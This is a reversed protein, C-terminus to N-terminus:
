INQWEYCSHGMVAEFLIDKNGLSPGQNNSAYNNLQTWNNTIGRIIAWQAGRDM